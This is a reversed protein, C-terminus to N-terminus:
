VGEKRSQVVAAEEGSERAPREEQRPVTEAQAEMM